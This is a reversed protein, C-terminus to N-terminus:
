HQSRSLQTNGYSGVAWIDDSSVVALGFLYNTGTGVNVSPVQQWSPLCAATASATPTSQPHGDGHPHAAPWQRNAHPQACPAHRDRDAWM